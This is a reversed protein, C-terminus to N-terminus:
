DHLVYYLLRALGCAVFNGALVCAERLGGLMM